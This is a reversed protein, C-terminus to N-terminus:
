RGGPIIVQWKVNKNIADFAAPDFVLQTLTKSNGVPLRQIAGSRILGEAFPGPLEGVLVVPNPTHRLGWEYAM